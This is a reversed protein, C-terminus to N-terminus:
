STSMRYITRMQTLTPTGLDIHEAKSAIVANLCSLDTLHKRRLYVYTSSEPNLRSSRSM